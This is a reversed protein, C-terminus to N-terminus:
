EAMFLFSIPDNTSIHTSRSDTMCLPTLDSLSFCIEYILMYIHFRSFHYLHVQKCLLFPSVSTSFLRIYVMPPLPTPHIPLNPNVHICQQTYFLYSILVQQLACPVRSLARQHGLHSPFGFFLLYIYIYLQNVKSHPLFQCLM